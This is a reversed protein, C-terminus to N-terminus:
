KIDLLNSILNQRIGQYIVKLNHKSVYSRNIVGALKPNDFLEDAASSLIIISNDKDIPFGDIYEEIQTISHQFFLPHKSANKDIKLIEDLMQQSTLTQFSYPNIEIKNFTMVVSQIRYSLAKEVDIEDTNHWGSLEGICFQELKKLGNKKAIRLSEAVQESLPLIKATIKSIVEAIEDNINSSSHLAPLSELWKYIQITERGTAESNSSNRRLYIKGPELGKMRITPSIPEEYKYIPIEIIGFIKNKYNITSYNFHPIPSTKNKIKEQFIADDVHKDIGILEKEGTRSEKIGLIIYASQTRITNCFCIIDKVFKATNAENAKNLFDYQESKFDLIESEANAIIEEFDNSTM